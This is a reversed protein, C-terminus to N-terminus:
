GQHRVEGSLSRGREYSYIERDMLVWAALASPGITLFTTFVALVESSAPPLRNQLQLVERLSLAARFHLLIQGVAQFVQHCTFGM